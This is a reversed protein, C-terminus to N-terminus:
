PNPLLRTRFFRRPESGVPVGFTMVSNTAVFNTWPQWDAMSSAHEMAYSLGPTAHVSFLFTGQSLAVDSDFRVSGSDVVTVAVVGSTRSLGLNDVAVASFSYIGAPLNQVRLSYPSSADEGAFTTGSFFQVNTVTGDPDAASAELTLTAPASLTRGSPPNTLAVVAPQNVAAQVTIVGNMSSRHPACYYGYSGPNTFTVSFTGPSVFFPSTAWASNSSVVNHSTSTTNTWLITDGASITVLRPQFGFNVMRVLTTAAPAQLASAALLVAPVVKCTLARLWGALPAAPPVITM